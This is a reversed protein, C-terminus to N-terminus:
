RERLRPNLVTELARGVLTFALVVLIIGIGPPLLYWWAGNTIAGQDFASELMTGWSIHFPDGLGLFSLTTESLISVAVTLTTNAFVLPMVNPLVHRTMQHWHGAGLARARELYPRAEISLTQARILRATYAWSTIGIVLIIVWFSHGLISALVIALPLFPIVLFWETLRNLVGAVFGTFHGSAIGVLTGIVMAVLSALFGILLSIRSGWIALTLISRGQADTGLPYGAYPPALLKGTATTVNLGDSSALLPAFVAVLIFFVLIGLGAMGAREQRFEAWVRAVSARRRAWTISRASSTKAAEVPADQDVSM